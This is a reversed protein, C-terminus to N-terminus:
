QCPETNLWPGLATARQIWEACWFGRRVGYEKEFRSGAPVLTAPRLQERNVVVVTFAATDDQVIARCSRDAGLIFEPLKSPLLVHGGARTKM